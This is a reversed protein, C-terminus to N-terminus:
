KETEESLANIMGVVVGVVVLFVGLDFLMVTAWEFEIDDGPLPIYNFNSTLFPMGLLLAGLGTLTAFFLGAAVLGRERTPLLRNLAPGGFAMRFVILSVAAVLGGVFGGGPTQHGKFFIFGAFVMAVPVILRAATQLITTTM